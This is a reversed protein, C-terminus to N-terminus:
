WTKRRQPQPVQLHYIEPTSLDYTSGDHLEKLQQSIKSKAIYHISLGQAQGNKQTRLTVKPTWDSDMQSSLWPQDHFTPNKNKKKTGCLSNNDTQSDRKQFNLYKVFIFPSINPLQFIKIYKQM